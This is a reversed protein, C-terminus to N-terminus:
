CFRHLSEPELLKGLGHYLSKCANSHGSVTSNRMILGINKIKRCFFDICVIKNMILRNSTKKESGSLRGDGKRVLIHNSDCKKRLM